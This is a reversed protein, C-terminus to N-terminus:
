TAIPGGRCDHNDQLGFKKSLELKLEARDGEKLNKYTVNQPLRFSIEVHHIGECPTHALSFGYGRATTISLIEHSVATKCGTYKYEPKSQKKLVERECGIKHVDKAEPVYRRWILSEPSGKSFLFMLKFILDGNEYMTPFDILRSMSENDGIEEAVTAACM